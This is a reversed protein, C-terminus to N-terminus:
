GMQSSTGPVLAPVGGVQLGFVESVFFKCDM